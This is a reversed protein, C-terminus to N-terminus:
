NIKQILGWRISAGDGTIPLAFYKAGATLPQFETPVVFIDPDLVQTFGEVTFTLPSPAATKVTVIALGQTKAGPGRLLKLLDVSKDNM